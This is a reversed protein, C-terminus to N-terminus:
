IEFDFTRSVGIISIIKNGNEGVFGITNRTYSKRLLYGKRESRQMVDTEVEDRVDLVERLLLLRDSDTKRFGLFGTRERPMAAGGLETSREKLIAEMQDRETNTLRGDLEGTPATWYLYDLKYDCYLIRERPTGSRGHKVIEIGGRLLDFTRSLMDLQQSTFYHNVTPGLNVLFSPNTDYDESFYTSNDRSRGTEKVSVEIALQEPHNDLAANEDPIKIVVHSDNDPALRVSKPSIAVQIMDDEAAIRNSGSSNSTLGM